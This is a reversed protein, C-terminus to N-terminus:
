SYPHGLVGEGNRKSFIVIYLQHTARQQHCTFVSIVCALSGQNQFNTAKVLEDQASVYANIEAICSSIEKETRLTQGFLNTHM